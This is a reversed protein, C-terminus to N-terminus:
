GASLAGANPTSASTVTRAFRAYIHELTKEIVCWDYKQEILQRARAGMRRALVPHKLLYVTKEAFEGPTDAILFHQGGRADIGEAGVSTTVVPKGQAMANLVKIKTGSGARLPAIFVSARAVYPRVDDVYGTYNINYAHRSARRIRAPPAAGVFNVCAEPLQRLIHPWIDRMFYLVGDRNYPSAMGGTWVLMNPNVPECGNLHFFQADTGNPAVAFNRSGCMRQLVQKDYESVAICTEFQPCTEREFRKLKHHQHILFLKMLPNRESESLRLLRLSEVNHNVLVAPLDGLDRAYLGLHLMDLHVVDFRYAQLLERLRAAAAPDYYKEAVLPLPSLLNRVALIAQRWGGYRLPFLDVTECLEYLRHKNDFGAQTQSFGVFHVAHRRSLARLTHYTRIHHGHDVPFPNETSVFLIRM